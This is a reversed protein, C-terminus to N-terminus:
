TCTFVTATQRIMKGSAKLCMETLTGSNVRAAHRTIRGTDRTALVMQGFKFETAMSKIVLGNVKIFLAM